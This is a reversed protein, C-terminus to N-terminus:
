ISFTIKLTQPLSCKETKQSIIFVFSNRNEVRLAAGRDTNHQKIHFRCSVMQMLKYPSATVRNTCTQVM